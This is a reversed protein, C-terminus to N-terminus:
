AARTNSPSEIRGKGRYDIARMRASSFIWGCKSSARAAAPWAHDVEFAAEADSGRDLRAPPLDVGDEHPLASRLLFQLIDERGRLPLPDRHAADGGRRQFLDDVALRVAPDDRHTRLPRGIRLAREIRDERPALRREQEQELSHVVRPVEARREPRGLRQSDVRHNQLLAFPVEVLGGHHAGRRARELAQGDHLRLALVSQEFPQLRAPQRDPGADRVRSPRDVLRVEARRHDERHAALLAPKRARRPRDAGTEQLDRRFRARRRQRHAVGRRDQHRLRRPLPRSYEGLEKRAKEIRGRIMARSPWDAPAVELAKEYDRIAGRLDGKEHLTLGRNGWADAYGPKLDIAKTFDEIARDRRDLARFCLGRTNYVEVYDPRFKLAADCDAIASEYEKRAKYSWARGFHSKEDPRLLIAATFDRIAEAHDGKVQNAAGRLGYTYASPRLKIAEGYDAVALAYHRTDLYANGRFIWANVFTRDLALASTCDRIAGEWDGKRSKALGRNAYADPYDPLGRLAENFDEIAGDYDGLDIRVNGRNLLCQAWGPIIALARDYDERAEQFRGLARRAMGRGFWAQAYRRDCKVAESMEEESPAHRSLHYFAHGRWYHGRGDTPATALYEGLLEAAPEHEGKSFALLGQGYRREANERSYEEVRALDAEIEERLKRGEPTEEQTAGGRGHRLQEYDDVRLRVRDLYAAAFRPSVAIAREVAALAQEKAGALAYARGTGVHAEPLDPHEALARDFERRAEEAMALLETRSYDPDRMRIRINEIVRRGSELHPQARERRRADAIERDRQASLELEKTRRADAERWWRRVLVAAVAATALLGAAATLVVARRRRVLTLTRYVTSPPHAVIADGELWHTLDEALEAATAYRRDPDKEVCKMVITELDRDVAPNHKRVPVAEEEVIKKVLVYIDEHRFLPRDALLEYLTAGLSYVDARRDVALGRAQEPSMYNPTGVIMGSRSAAGDIATSKALGFDMVYIRPRRQGPPTEVMLNDPKLDRHVVGMEHAHHVALAADRVLEVVLRRDASPFAALTPGDVYQMAICDDRAEYVTAINPHALRAATQAERRLRAIEVPDTGKIFKLAVWRGLKEDWAKWVEGMGGEGLLAVKLYPGVRQGTSVTSPSAPAPQVVTPKTPPGPSGAQEHHLYGRRVMVEILSPLPTVGGAAMEARARMCEAVQEPSVEGQAVVLRWLDPDSDPSDAVAMFLMRCWSRLGTHCVAGTM